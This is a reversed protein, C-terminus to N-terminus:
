TVPPKAAAPPAIELRVEPHALSVSAIEARGRLLPLLRLHADIQEARVEALGPIEVRVKSLAGRPSPLLRISLKEWAVEGRIFQSLKAQLEHEVAPTDLFLPLLLAPAFVLVALAAAAYAAYRAARPVSM